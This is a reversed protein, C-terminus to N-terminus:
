ADTEPPDDEIHRIKGLLLPKPARPLEKQHVDYEMKATSLINQALKAVAKARQPDGDGRRLADIEDFLADRLGGSTREVAPLAAAEIERDFQEASRALKFNSPRKECAKRLQDAEGFTPLGASYGLCEGTDSLRQVCYGGTARDYQVRYHHMVAEAM